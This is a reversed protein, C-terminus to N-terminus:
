RFSSNSRFNTRHSQLYDHIDRGFFSGNALGGANDVREDAESSYTAGSNWDGDDGDTDAGEEAGTATSTNWNGSCGDVAGDSAGAGVAAAVVAAAAVVVTIAATVVAAAVAVVAADAIDVGLAEVDEDDDDAGGATGNGAIRGIMSADNAGDVNRPSGDSSASIHNEENSFYVLKRLM